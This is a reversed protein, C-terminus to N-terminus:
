RIAAEIRDRSLATYDKDIDCGWFDMGHTVASVGTTGHGLFPDICLGGPTGCAKLIRDMLKLPMQPVAKKVGYKGRTKREHFTGCVRSELWVDEEPTFAKNLDLPNYIWVNDPLKGAANQRKDSYVLQRASHIRLDEDDKNFVHKTKHKTFHLWHTHCRNFKKRCAVGFTYYWVVWSQLHFGPWTTLNGVGEQFTGQVLPHQKALMVVQAVHEDCMALWFSGNPKLVKYIEAMWDNVWDLYVEEPKDDDYKDYAKYDINYPPDAIALDVSEPKLNRPILRV